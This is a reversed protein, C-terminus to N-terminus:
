LCMVLLLSHDYRELSKSPILFSRCGLSPLFQTGILIRGGISYEHAPQSRNAVFRLVVKIHAITSRVDGNETWGLRLFEQRYDDFPGNIVFVQKSESKECFIWRVKKGSVGNAEMWQRVLAEFEKETTPPGTITVAKAAAARRPSPPLALLAADRHSSPKTSVRRVLSTMPLPATADGCLVALACGGFIQREHLDPSRHGKTLM